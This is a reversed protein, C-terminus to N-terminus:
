GASVEVTTGLEQDSSGLPAGVLLETNGHTAEPHAHERSGQFFDELNSQWPDALAGHHM